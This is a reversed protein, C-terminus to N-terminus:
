HGQSRTGRSRPSAPTEKSSSATPARGRDGRGKLDARAGPHATRRTGSPWRRRHRPGLPRM